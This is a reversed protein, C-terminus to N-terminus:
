SDGEEGELRNNKGGLILSIWIVNNSTDDNVYCKDDHLLVPRSLARVPTRIVLWVVATENENGRETCRCLGTVRPQLSGNGLRVVWCLAGLLGLSVRPILSPHAILM